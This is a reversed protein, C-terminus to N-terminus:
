EINVVIIKALNSLPHLSPNELYNDIALQFGAAVLRKCGEIIDNTIDAYSPIKLIVQDSSLPLEFDSQLLQETLTIIARHKGVLNDIGIDVFANIIVQSSSKDNKIHQSKDPSVSHPMLEYAYVNLNHTYIPQREIFIEAM